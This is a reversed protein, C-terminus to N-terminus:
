SPGATTRVAPGLVSAGKGAQRHRVLKVTDYSRDLDDLDTADGQGGTVNRGILEVADDLAEQRRTQIFVHAGEEVFLEAGAPRRALPPLWSTSSAPALSRSCGCRTHHM